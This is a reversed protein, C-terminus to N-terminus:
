VLKSLFANAFGLVMLFGCMDTVTTLIPGSALAPDFGFRKLVLPITGGICVAVITNLALAGGVVLGLYVNGKWIFCVTGLLLGLVLGNILGVSLEKLLVRMFEYPKVLNMTLERISVAVAQNGSCGSMDSIIPLFVALVIVAELTDQYFAIISAAVINLIINVSLWSLRRYSRIGVPMSRLEEGGVVGSVKLFQETAFEESAEEVASRRVVGVLKQNEDVVPVGIFNHGDFFAVLEDLPTQVGISLPNHIIINEVSQNKKSLILDRLRLVGILKGELDTIYTYQVDYDSYEEDNERLDEFVDNVKLNVPYSLYEKIMLGGASHEEYEMLSRAHEAEEEDMKELIAETHEKSLDGLLDAQSDSPMQDVISAAKDPSLGDMIGAVQIEPLQEILDASLEPGLMDFVELVEEKKLHSFVHAAEGLPLDDLFIQLESPDKSKTLESIKEWPEEEYTNPETM